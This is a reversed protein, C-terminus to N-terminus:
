KTINLNNTEHKHTNNLSFTITKMVHVKNKLIFEYTEKKHIEPIKIM